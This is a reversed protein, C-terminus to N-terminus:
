VYRGRETGCRREEEEEEEEEETRRSRLWRCRRHLALWPTRKFGNLDDGISADDEENDDDISEDDDDFLEPLEAPM